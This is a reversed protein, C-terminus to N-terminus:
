EFLVKVFLKDYFAFKIFDDYKDYYHWFYENFFNGTNQIAGCLNRTLSEDNKQIKFILFINNASDIEPSINEISMSKFKSIEADNIGQLLYVIKAIKNHYVPMETWHYKYGLAIKGIIFDLDANDNIMQQVKLCDYDPNRLARFIPEIKNEIVSFKQNCKFCCPVTIRQEEIHEGKFISKSPIHDKTIINDDSPSHNCFVCNMKSFRAYM